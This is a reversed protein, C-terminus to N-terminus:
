PEFTYEFKEIFFRQSRTSDLPDPRLRGTIVLTGNGEIFKDYLVDQTPCGSAFWDVRCVSYRGYFHFPKRLVLLGKRRAIKPIFFTNRDITIGQVNHFVNNYTQGNAVFEDVRRQVTNGFAWARSVNFSAGVRCGDIYCDTEWHSNTSGFINLTTSFESTKITGSGSLGSAGSVSIYGEEIQVPTQQAFAASCCFVLFM